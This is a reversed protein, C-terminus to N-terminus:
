LSCQLNGFINAVCANLDAVVYGGAMDRCGCVMYWGTRIGCGACSFGYGGNEACVLNGNYNAICLNLDIQSDKFGGSGDACNASLYHDDHVYYGTCTRAFGGEANVASPLLAIFASFTSFSTSLQM